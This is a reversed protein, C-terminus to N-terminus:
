KKNLRVVASASLGLGGGTIPDFATGSVSVNAAGGAFRGNQGAVVMEWPTEGNCEFFTGSTGSIVRRGVRQKVEAGLEIFGQRSCTVTGRITANGAKDFSGTGKIQLDATFPQLQDVNFVLNGGAGSAFAGMMFYYTENSFVDIAVASQLSGADDNCAIQSLNGSSGVYVSLTTDYDSGFTDAQILMGQSPTFAYWVTSGNGACDPDDVATTAEATNVFDSFPLPETVITAAAFDDNAPRGISPEGWCFYIDAGTAPQCVSPLTQSVNGDGKVQTGPHPRRDCGPVEECKSSVEV